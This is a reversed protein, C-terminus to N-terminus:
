LRGQEIFKMKLLRRGISDIGEANDQCDISFGGHNKSLEIYTNKGESLNRSSIYIKNRGFLFRKEDLLKQLEKSLEHM